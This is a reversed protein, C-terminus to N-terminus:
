DSSEGKPSAKTAPAEEFAAQADSIADLLAALAQHGEPSDRVILLQGYVTITRTKTKPGSQAPGFPTASSMPSKRHPKALAQELTLALSDAPENKELMPGVNYVSLQTLESAQEPTTIQLVEDAVVYTLELDRLMLRLASRLSVGKLNRTIPTDSSIGVEELARTDLLIGINHLESLFAVVDTLPTEIFELTTDEDLTAFIKNAAESQETRVVAWRQQANAISSVSAIVAASTVLVSMLTRRSM